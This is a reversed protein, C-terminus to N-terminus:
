QVFKVVKKYATKDLETLKQNKEWVLKVQQMWRESPKGARKYKDSKDQKHLFDMFEDYEISGSGDDDIKKFIIDDTDM